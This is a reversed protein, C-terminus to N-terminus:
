AECQVAIEAFYECGEFGTKAAFREAIRQTRHNLAHCTLHLYDIGRERATRVAQTMLTTGIGQGQWASEVTLMIQAKRSRGPSFEHLEAAGRMHLGVFCGIVARAPHSAHAGPRSPRTEQGLGTRASARRAGEVRLRHWQLHYLQGAPVERITAPLGGLVTTLPETNQGRPGDDLM